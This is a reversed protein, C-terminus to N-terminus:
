IEIEGWRDYSEDEQGVKTSVRCLLEGQMSSTSPDVGGKGGGSNSNFIGDLRSNATNLAAQNSSFGFGVNNHGSSNSSYTGRDAQPKAPGNFFNTPLAGLDQEQAGSRGVVGQKPDSFDVDQFGGGDGGSVRGTTGTTFQSGHFHQPQHMHTQNSGGRNNVFSDFDGDGPSAADNQGLDINIFGESLLIRKNPAAPTDWSTFGSM